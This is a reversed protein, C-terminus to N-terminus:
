LNKNKSISLYQYFYLSVIIGFLVYYGMLYYNYLRTFELGKNMNSYVIYFFVFVFLYSNKLVMDSLIHIKIKNKNSFQYLAMGGYGFIVVLFSLAYFVNSQYTSMIFYYIIKTLQVSSILVLLLSNVLHGRPDYYISTYSLLVLLLTIIELLIFKNANSDKYDFYQIGLTVIGLIAVIVGIILIGYYVTKKDQLGM